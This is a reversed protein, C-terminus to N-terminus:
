RRNRAAWDSCTEGDIAADEWKEVLEVQVSTTRGLDHKVIRTLAEVAAAFHERPRRIWSVQIITPLPSEVGDRFLIADRLFVYVSQRPTGLRKEFFDSALRSFRAGEEPTLGTVYLNPM